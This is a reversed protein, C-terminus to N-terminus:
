RMVPSSDAVWIVGYERREFLMSEIDSSQAMGFFM